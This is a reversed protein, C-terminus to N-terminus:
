NRTKKKNKAEEQFIHLATFHQSWLSEFVLKFQKQYKFLEFIEESLVCRWLSRIFQQRMALPMKIATDMVLAAFVAWAYLGPWEEGREQKLNENELDPIPMLNEANAIFDPQNGVLSPLYKETQRPSEMLEFLLVFVEKWAPEQMKERLSTWHADDKGWFEMEFRLYAAAFYEMFSLHTFAYLKGGRPIFLGSREAIYALISETEEHAKESSFTSELIGQQIIEAVRKEGILVADERKGRSSCAM